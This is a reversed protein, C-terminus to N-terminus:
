RQHGDRLEASRTPQWEPFVDFGRMHKVVCQRYHFELLQRDPAKRPHCRFRSSAIIKGHYQKLASGEFIHILLNAPDSPDPYLAWDGADWRLHLQRLLLLGYSADFYYVPDYGFIEEYYEPRSQPIIHAAGAEDEDTVICTGDRKWLEGRFKSQQATSRSSHSMTGDSGSADPPGRSKYKFRPGITWSTPATSNATQVYVVHMPSVQGELDISEPVHAVPAPGAVPSNKCRHLTGSENVVAKCAKLVYAWSDVRGKVLFECSFTALRVRDIDYVVIVGGGPWELPTLPYTTVM